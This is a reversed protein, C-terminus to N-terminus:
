AGMEPKTSIEFAVGFELMQIISRPLGFINKLPSKIEEIISRSDMLNKETRYYSGEGFNYKWQPVIKKQVLCKFLNVDIIYIDVDSVRISNIGTLYSHNTIIVPTVDKGEIDIGLKNEALGPNRMLFQHRELLQRAAKVLHNEVFRYAEIREEPKISCKAEYLLINNGGLDIVGDIEPVNKKQDRKNRTFTFGSEVVLGSVEGEFVHGKHVGKKYLLKIDSRSLIKDIVKEYSLSDAVRPLLYFINGKKLIPLSNVIGISDLDVDFVFLELLLREAESLDLQSVFAKYGYVYLLNNKSRGFGKGGSLVLGKIKRHIKESLGILDQIQFKENKFIFKVDVAGYMQILMKKKKYFYAEKEFEKSKSMDVRFVRGEDDLGGAGVISMVETVDEVDKGFSSDFSYNLDRYAELIKWNEPVRELYFKFVSGVTSVWNRDSYKNAFYQFDKPNYGGYLVEIIEDTISQYHAIASLVSECDKTKGFESKNSFKVGAQRILKIFSPLSSIMHDSQSEMIDDRYRKGDFSIKKIDIRALCYEIYCFINEASLRDAIEVAKAFYEERKDFAFHLYGVMDPDIIESPKSKLAEFVKNLSGKKLRLLVLSSLLSKMEFHTQINEIREFLEDPKDKYINKYEKRKEYEEFTPIRM